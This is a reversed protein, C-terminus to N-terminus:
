LNAGSIPRVSDDIGLMLIERVCEAAEAIDSSLVDMAPAAIQRRVALAARIKAGSPCGRSVVAVQGSPRGVEGM